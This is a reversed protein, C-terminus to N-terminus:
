YAGFWKRAFWEISLLAMLLFFLGLLNIIPRTKVSEYLRPKINELNLIKDTLLQINEPLFFDGNSQNALKKLLQHNATTQLAELQMANVSFAGEASLNLGNFNTSATYSYNGIPLTQTQFQYAKNTKNFTFPFEQGQENSLLLNVEPENVLEYNENYLEAEFQVTEGEFYANKNTSVRFKRKDGKLALYNLTKEVIENFAEHSGNELYDHLKWRWLGDGIFAASRTGFNDQFCLLPFDTQVSGVKQKLAISTNAGSNYSGFPTTVPPFKQLSSATNESLNFSSFSSNLYPSADNTNDANPTISLVTQAENFLNYSSSTGTIFWTPVKASKVTNLIQQAGQNKSPLQHFIVLSYPAIEAQFRDIYEIDIEFNKNVEIVSKIAAIDPHPANAILLIQQRNDIVEIYFDYSNNITSIEDEFAKIQVTYKHIGIADATITFNTEVEDYDDVIAMTKNSLVKGKSSLSIDYQKGQLHNAQLDVEVQIEDDLYALKNNRVAVIKVDKQQNTDGLAITYIPFDFNEYVPNNGQNYIGDSALIVAGVNQNFYLGNIQKLVHSINTSKGQYNLTDNQRLDQDFIYYDLSYKDSLSAILQQTDDYYNSSDESSLNLLLSESNDQIFVIRPEIKDIHDSKILPSLLLFALLSITLWRSFALARKVWITNPNDNDFDKTRFYLVGAYVAGLLVCFLIFWSPYSFIIEM